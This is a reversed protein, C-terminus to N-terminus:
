AGSELEPYLDLVFEMLAVGARPGLNFFYAEDYALFAGAAGAPTEAIGPIELLAEIGGLAALGSEPLVIVDPAAAIIAEPTLPQAGMVGAEAGVDVAGAGEIMANTAMGAGFFLLLQPGRTYIFAVRPARDARAATERAADIEAGVREALLGGAEDLGVLHAITTIKATVDDLSSGTALVVVPVGAARLQEISEAPATLENALVLTPQMALVPEPALSQAFGIVPIDATAEPFTTTVDVAVVRDGAGLDFLIETFDGSLSVIRSTDTVVSEVGDFGTYTVGAATTSTAETTTTSTAATTTTTTTTATTGTEDDGCATAVLVLSVILGIVRTKM